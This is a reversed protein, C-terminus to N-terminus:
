NFLILRKRKSESSQGWAAGMKNISPKYISVSNKRHVLITLSLLLYIINQLGGLFFSGLCGGAFSKVTGINYSTFNACIDKDM